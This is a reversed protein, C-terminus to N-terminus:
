TLANNIWGFYWIPVGDDVLESGGGSGSIIMAPRAPSVYVQVKAGVGLPLANDDAVLANVVALGTASKRFGGSLAVSYRQHGHTDNPLVETVEGFFLGERKPGAAPVVIRNARLDNATRLAQAAARATRFNRLRDDNPKM